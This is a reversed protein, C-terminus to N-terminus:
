RKVTSGLHWGDRTGAPHNMPSAIQHGEDIYLKKKKKRKKRNSRRIPRTPLGYHPFSHSSGRENHKVTAGYM